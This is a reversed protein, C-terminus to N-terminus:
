NYCFPTVHVVSVTHVETLLQSGNSGFAAANSSVSQCIIALAALWFTDADKQCLRQQIHHHHKLEYKHGKNEVM